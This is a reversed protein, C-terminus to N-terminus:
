PFHSRVFEASGDSSANDVVIIENNPNGSLARVVYPLYKDLLDRGNWNPIVVSAADARPCTSAPLTHRRRRFLDSLALALLPALILLPSLILSPLSRLVRWGAAAFGRM